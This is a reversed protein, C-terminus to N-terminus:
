RVELRALRLPGRAYLKARAVAEARREGRLVLARSVAGFITGLSYVIWGFTGFWKRIYTEQGAHFLVERRLPDASSGAGLHIATADPCMRSRWGHALARRQWDAEEAYLFYREDFPGVQEIAEWRLLLVAGIVFSRSSPLRGLGVAQLWARAPSPFPWSVREANGHQDVLRPAIAAIRDTEFGRDLCSTLAEIAAPTLRADPNVLLVDCEGSERVRELGRNVGAAFGRNRGADLYDVGTRQAVAEVAPSSSNDVITVDVAGAISRVCADLNDVAHYAVVIARVARKRM